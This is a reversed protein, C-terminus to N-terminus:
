QRSSRGRASRRPTSRACGAVSRGSRSPSQHSARRRRRRRRRPPAAGPRKCCRNDLTEGRALQRYRNQRRHAPASGLALRHQLRAGAHVDNSSRRSPFGDGARRDRRNIKRCIGPLALAEPNAANGGRRRRRPKFFAGPDHNGSEARVCAAAAPVIAYSARHGELSRAHSLSWSTPPRTTIGAAASSSLEARRRRVGSPSLPEDSWSKTTCSGSTRSAVSSTSWWQTSLHRPARRSSQACSCGRRLLCHESSRKPESPQASAPTGNSSTPVADCSQTPDPQRGTDCRQRDRRGSRGRTGCAPVTSLRSRPLPPSARAHWHHAPRVRHRHEDWAARRRVAARRGPRSCRPAPHAVAESQPRTTCAAGSRRGGRKARLNADGLSACAARNGSCNAQEGFVTRENGREVSHSEGGGAGRRDGVDSRVANAPAM